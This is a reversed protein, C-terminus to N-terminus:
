RVELIQQVMLILLKGIVQQSDHGWLMAVPEKDLNKLTETFAGSLIRDGDADIVNMRNVGAEILCIEDDTSKIRLGDTQKTHITATTM